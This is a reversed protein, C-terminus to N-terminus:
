SLDRGHDVDEEGKRKMRFIGKQTRTKKYAAARVFKSRPIIEWSFRSRITAAQSSTITPSSSSWKGRYMQCVPLPVWTQIAEKNKKPTTFGSPIM